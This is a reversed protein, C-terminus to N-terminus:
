KGIMETTEVVVPLAVRITTDGPTSCVTLVGGIDEVISRSISMGMGLGYRVRGAKTTFHPEFIKEVLHPPIGPGNDHIEVIVTDLDHSVKAWIAPEAEGRAPVLKTGEPLQTGAALDAQAKAVDGIEDDLAEAANVLLNTWVQQLKGPHARIYPVDEYECEVNIGRLRHKTLRLVDDLGARVDIERFQETDPRAYGKLSQTLEIVRDGASLVARLSTGVRSGAEVAALEEAGDAGAFRTAVQPDVIGARVLRRALQRDGGVVPLIEAIQAREVSTSRPPAELAGTIAEKARAMAPSHALLRDVDESLHEASRVLATVPNNLEHAIGASLEGLMAFRAREVLEERTAELTELTEALQGRQQELDEALMANELHLDEARMLRRTLSQIALAALVRALEPEAGLALQLQENTLRVVRSPTTTISTFFASEGRALAILGILPGSTAHHALVEGAMSDRHLSVHGELVLHVASVPEGQRTLETGAPVKLRPRHGLVREVGALLERVVETENHHMGELLPGQVATPPPPGILDIIQQRNRGERQLYRVMVSYSQGLVVPVTWPKTVISALRGSNIARTLDDHTPKTTAVSWQTFEFLPLQAIDEIVSDLDTVESTLMGLVVHDNPRLTRDYTEVLHPGDIRDICLNPFAQAMDRTLESAIHDHDDGIVLVHVTANAKHGGDMVNTKAWAEEHSIHM